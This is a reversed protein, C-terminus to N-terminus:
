GCVAGAARQGRRRSRLFQRCHWQGGGGSAPRRPPVRGALGEIMATAVSTSAHSPLAPRSLTPHLIRDTQWGCHWGGLRHSCVVWLNLPNPFAWCSSSRCRFPCRYRRFQHVARWSVGILEGQAADEKARVRSDGPDLAARGVSGACDLRRHLDHGNRAPDKRGATGHRQFGVAAASAGGNGSRVPMRNTCTLAEM